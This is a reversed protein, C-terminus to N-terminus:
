PQVRQSQTEENLPTCPSGAPDDCWSPRKREVQALTARSAYGETVDELAWNVLTQLDCWRISEPAPAPRTRTCGASLLRYQVRGHTVKLVERVQGATGRLIMGPELKHARLRPAPTPPPYTERM